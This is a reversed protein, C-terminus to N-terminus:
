STTARRSPDGARGQRVPSEAGPGPGGAGQEAPFCMSLTCTRFSDGLFDDIRRIKELDENTLIPQRCRSGCTAQRRDGLDLLNPRPGILSVLSMVLEERIPDIPPNTVQAFKQKFYDYLLRPKESLM